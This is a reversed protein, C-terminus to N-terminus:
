DIRTIKGPRPEIVREIRPPHHPHHPRPEVVEETVYVRRLHGCNADHRHQQMMPAAQMHMVHMPQVTTPLGYGNEYNQLYAECYSTWYAADDFEPERYRYHDAEDSDVASGIVAGALGGVGAGILTGALRDDDAIRNGAVGGVIAGLIGGILGGNGDRHEEEVYEPYRMYGNRNNLAVCQSIWAQRQEASYAFRRAPPTAHHGHSGHEGQIVARRIYRREIHQEGEGLADERWGSSGHRYIVRGEDSIFRDGGIWTGQYDADVTEGQINTFTGDFTGSYTETGQWAGDWAGHYSGPQHVPQHVPQAAVDVDGPIYVVEEEVVHEPLPPHDVGVEEYHEEVYVGQAAVPASLCAIAASAALLSPRIPM